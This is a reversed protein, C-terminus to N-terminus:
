KTETITINYLAEVLKKKLRYVPTKVGKVDEVIMKDTKSVQYQFDAIYKGVHKNNVTISFIPQLTLNYIDGAMELLKLESYRRAEAKSAFVFGDVETKVANYKTMKKM